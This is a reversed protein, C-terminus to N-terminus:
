KVESQNNTGKKYPLTIHLTHQIYQIISDFDYSLLPTLSFILRLFIHRRNSFLPDDGLHPQWSSTSHVPQIEFM